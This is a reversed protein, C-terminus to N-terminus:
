TNKFVMNLVLLNLFGSFQLYYTHGAMLNCEIRSDGQGTLETQNRGAYLKIYTDNTGTKDSKFIYRGNEPAKFRYMRFQTSKVGVDVPNDLILEEEPESKVVNLRAHLRNNSQNYNFVKVYYTVGKTLTM